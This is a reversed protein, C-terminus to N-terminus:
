AGFNSRMFQEMRFRHEEASVGPPPSMMPFHQQHPPRFGPPGPPPQTNSFMYPPQQHMMHQQPSQNMGIPPSFMPHQQQYGPSGQTNRGDSHHAYAHSPRYMPNNASSKMIDPQSNDFSDKHDPAAVRATMIAPDNFPADPKGDNAAKDEDHKQQAAAQKLFNGFFSQAESRIDKAEDSVTGAAKMGEVNQPSGHMMGQEANTNLQLNQLHGSLDNLSQQQRLPQRDYNTMPSLNSPAAQHYRHNELASNGLGPPLGRPSAYVPSQHMHLPSHACGQLPSNAFSSGPLENHNPQSIQREQNGNTPNSHVTEPLPTQANDGASPGFSINVNPLLARFGEQMSRVQNIEPSASSQQQPFPGPSRAVLQYPSHQHMPNAADSFPSQVENPRFNHHQGLPSPMPQSSMPSRTGMMQGHREPGYMPPPQMHPPGHMGMSGPPPPPPPHPLNPHSGSPGDGSKMMGLAAIMQQSHQLRRAMMMEADQGRYPDYGRPLMGPPPMLGPPFHRHMFPPMAQHLMPNFGFPPPPHAMHPNVGPMGLGPPMKMQRVPNQVTADVANAASKYGADHDDLKSFNETFCEGSNYDDSDGEDDSSLLKEILIDDDIYGFSQNEAGSEDLDTGMSRSAENHDVFDEKTSDQGLMDSIEDDSAEFAEEKTYSEQSMIIDQGPRIPSDGEEDLQTDSAVVPAESDVVVESVVAANAGFTEPVFPISDSTHVNSTDDITDDRDIQTSELINDAVSSMAESVNAHEEGGDQQLGPMDDTDNKDTALTDKTRSPMTQDSTSPESSPQNGGKQQQQRKEKRKGEVRAPRKEGRTPLPIQGLTALAPPKATEPKITPIIAWGKPAKPPQPAPLEVKKSEVNEAKQISADEKESEPESEPLKNPILDVLDSGPSTGLELRIAKASRPIRKEKRKPLAPSHKPKQPLTLADSLSPGFHEPTVEAIVPEDAKQETAGWAAWRATAPLAVNTSGTETSSSKQLPKPVDKAASKRANSASLVSTPSPKNQVEALQQKGISLNEKNYSDSEEGPEHLYMCSPNPCAMHSLYYTCYKTTGYSARLFNGDKTTGDLSSIAKAADEKRNYTVYIGVSSQQDDEPQHMAHRKSIVIKSVKGFQRFIESEENAYEATLGLVYMLNKQVVRTNSLHKRSSMDMEKQRKEKVKKEKKIRAIEKQSIPVFQVTQESYLSRCAPCRGNLNEKIHHWCFRCIQYGCPCPRFGRDSLDFEEMCLPCDCDEDDAFM